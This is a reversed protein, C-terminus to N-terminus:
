FPGFKSLCSNISVIKLDTKFCNQMSELYDLREESCILFKKSVFSDVSWKIPCSLDVVEAGITEVFKPGFINKLSIIKPLDKEKTEESFSFTPNPDIKTSHNLGTDETTLSSKMDTITESHIITSSASSNINSTDSGAVAHTQDDKILSDMIKLNNTTFVNQEMSITKLDILSSETMTRETELTDKNDGKRKPSIMQVDKGERSNMRADNRQPSIMRADNRQPSIMRADNRQPSIMRADNRQPSIMRADNRQPSIMRTSNKEPSYTKLDIREPLELLLREQNARPSDMRIYNTRPNDVLIDNARVSDMHTDITKPSDMQVDNGEPTGM